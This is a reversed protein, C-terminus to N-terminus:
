TVAVAEPVPKVPSDELFVRHWLELTLLCFVEKGFQATRENERVLGEITRPNFYGRSTTRPDFLLDRVWSRLGNALWSECPVPFGAKKRNLIRAPVRSALAKKAIHKTTLGNVKQDDPLSAAFELVVHDLLPVRLELSNAMTMKDAKILLEDPLWTKTDIYLMRDVFSFNRSADHLRRLPELSRIKDTSSAFDSSYLNPLERNFYQFPSSSRSYYYDEFTSDLLPLYRAIRSSRLVSNMGSLLPVPANLSKLFPRTREFWSLNRYNSYGAFAEDGGEGSILVKVYNSALQSVYFLAIAPPECVPEEMHWVYQPMFDVFDRPSITMEHHQTGYTQAALRAYPREDIVGPSDFGVTYSSLPQTTREHAFSLMATSDVGGSLLFGVPVDSIMHLEVSKALLDLLRDQLEASSSKEASKTFDLDWYKRIETKGNRALLYHGPPIKCVDKLLTEEGPLYYFTLFRDIAEPLIERKVEPLAVISKIESSFALFDARNYYYLPKIGVRDRALLLTRQKTDWIAFAFMGRLKEVCRPGLEEYLHVIVETDSETRFTHGRRLLEPRLERYNYIEGNFVIWVSGDENSLPQHGTNLDIISLRRHGLAIQPACYTGEDDPGRHRIPDLM